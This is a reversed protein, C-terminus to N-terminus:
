VAFLPSPADRWAPEPPLGVFSAITRPNVPKAFFGTCALGQREAEAELFGFASLAVVRPHYDPINRLGHLARWGDFGPLDIDVVIVPPRLLAAEELVADGTEVPIVTWGEHRLYHSVAERDYLNDEAFLVVPVPSPSSLNQM